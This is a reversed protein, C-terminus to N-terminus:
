DVPPEPRVTLPDRPWAESWVHGEVGRVMVARTATELALVFDRVEHADHDFVVRRPDPILRRGLPHKPDDMRMPQVEHYPVDSGAAYDLALVPAAEDPTLWEHRPVDPLSAEDTGHAAELQRINIREIAEDGCAAVCIDGITTM